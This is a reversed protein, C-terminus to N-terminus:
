PMTFAIPAGFFATCKEEQITQLFYLPHYERIMVMTGGIYQIGIFWNNLPSSHWLPMAMMIRDSEDFKCGMALTIGAMIVGRHTHMCGKPKGTTGSTYLIEALDDDSIEVPSFSPATDLLPEFQEFGEAPSDMAIMRIKNSLKAAGEALSGDFLFIKSESHELIYDVEPPMLKHNIPVVTAGAKAIGFFAIVFGPTNQSMIAVKDGKKIGWGQFLGAAKEALEKVTQYSYGKGQARLCDKDPSKRANSDILGALNM